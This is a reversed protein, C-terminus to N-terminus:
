EAQSRRAHCVNQAWTRWSRSPHSLCAASPDDQQALTSQTQAPAEFGEPIRPVGVCARTAGRGDKKRVCGLSTARNINFAAAIEELIDDSFLYRQRVLEPAYKLM